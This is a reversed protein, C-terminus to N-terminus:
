SQTMGPYLPLTLAQFHARTANPFMESRYGYREQFFPQLHMGYTGLTTEVDRKRMEVIIRDRDISDDLIVVYSQYSHSYGSPCVPARVGAVDALLSSLRAALDVRQAAIEDLRAMQAVGIAAHVDSLRYNYGPSVFEM